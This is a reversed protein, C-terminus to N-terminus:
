IWKLLDDQSDSLEPSYYMILLNGNTRKLMWIQTGDPLEWQHLSNPEYGNADGFVKKDLTEYENPNAAKEEGYKMRYANLLTAATDDSVKEVVYWLSILRGTNNSFGFGMIGDKVTSFEVPDYYLYRTNEDRHDRAYQGALAVVEGENMGWTIGNRFVFPESQEKEVSNESLVPMAALLMVTMVLLAALLKKM